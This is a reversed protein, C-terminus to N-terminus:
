EQMSAILFDQLISVLQAEQQCYAQLKGQAVQSTVPITPVARQAEKSRASQATRSAYSPAPLTSHHLVKSVTTM